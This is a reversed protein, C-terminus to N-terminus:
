ERMQQTPRERLIRRGGKGGGPNGRRTKGIDEALRQLKELEHLFTKVSLECRNAHQINDEAGLLERVGNETSAISERRRLFKKRTKIEDSVMAYRDEDNAREAMRCNKRTQLTKERVMDDLKNVVRVMDEIAIGRGRLLTELTQGLTEMEGPLFKESAVPYALELTFRIPINKLSSLDPTRGSRRQAYMLDTLRTQRGLLETGHRTYFQHGAYYRGLKSLLPGLSASSAATDHSLSM